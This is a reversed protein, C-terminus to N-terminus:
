LMLSQTQVYLMGLAYQAEPLGARAADTLVRKAKDVDQRIHEGILLAKGYLYLSKIHKKSAAQQYYNLAKIPNYHNLAQNAYINGLRYMARRSGANSAENYLSIAKM